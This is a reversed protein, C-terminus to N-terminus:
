HKDGRNNPKSKKKAGAQKTKDSKGSKAAHTAKAKHHPRGKKDAVMTFVNKGKGKARALDLPSVGAWRSGMQIQVLGAIDADALAMKKSRKKWHGWAKGYPPGPDRDIGVFLVDFPVNVKSFIVSWSGGRARLGIIFDVPRGSKRALFLVVPLEEEVHHLRPLVPELVSRNYGYSSVALNLFLQSDDDVHNVSFLFDFSTGAEAASTGGALSIVLVVGALGIWRRLM